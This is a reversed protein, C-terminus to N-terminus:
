SRERLLAEVVRVHADISAIVKHVRYHLYLSPIFFVAAEDRTVPVISRRLIARRLAPIQELDHNLSKLSASASALHIHVERLNDELEQTMRNHQKAEAVETWVGQATAAIASYTRVMEMTGTFM